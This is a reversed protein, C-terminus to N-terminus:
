RSRYEKHERIERGYGEGQKWREVPPLLRAPSGTINECFAM